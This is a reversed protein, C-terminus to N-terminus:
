IQATASSLVIIEGDAVAWRMLEPRRWIWGSVADVGSIAPEERWREGGGMQLAPRMWLHDHRRNEAEAVKWRWRM